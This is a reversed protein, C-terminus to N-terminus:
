PVPTEPGGTKRQQNPRIKRAALRVGKRRLEDDEIQMIPHWSTPPLQGPPQQEVWELLREPAVECAQEVIATTAKRDEHELMVWLEEWYPRTHALLEWCRIQQAIRPIELLDAIFAQDQYQFSTLLTELSESSTQPHGALGIDMSAWSTEAQVLQDIQKESLSPNRALAALLEGSRGPWSHWRGALLNGSEIFQPSPLKEWVQPSIDAKRAVLRWIPFAEFELLEVVEGPRASDLWVGIDWLWDEASWGDDDPRHQEPVRFNHLGEAQYVDMLPSWAIDEVQHTQQIRKRLLEVIQGTRSTEWSRPPDTPNRALQRFRRCVLMPVQENPHEIWQRLERFTGPQEKDARERIAPLTDAIDTPELLHNQEQGRDRVQRTEDPTQSRPNLRFLSSM